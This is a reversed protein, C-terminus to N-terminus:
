MKYSQSLVVVVVVDDLDLYGGIDHMQQKLSRELFLPMKWQGFKVKECEAGDSLLRRIWEM